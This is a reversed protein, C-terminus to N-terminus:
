SQLKQESSSEQGNALEEWRRVYAIGREYRTVVVEEGKAVAEGNESRAACPKRVGQQVFIMEGTGGARITSSVNGLVGVMEYDMPDLTGDEAMLVKGVFWFVIGAGAVGALTAVGLGTLLVWHRHQTLYGIAGFWTLFAALTMPNVFTLLTHAAGGHSGHTGHGAHGGGHGGAGGGHAVGGHFGKPLHLPLHLFGTLFSLVSFTFGAIFCILYFTELTM